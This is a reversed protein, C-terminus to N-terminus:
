VHARGIEYPNPAAYQEPSARACAALLRTDAWDNYDYLLKIEDIKMRLMEM